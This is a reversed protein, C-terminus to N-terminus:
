AISSAETEPRPDRSSRRRSSRRGWRRRAPRSTTARPASTPRSISHGDIRLRTERRIADRNRSRRDRRRGSPLDVGGGIDRKARLGRPPNVGVVLTRSAAVANRQGRGASGNPAASAPVARMVTRRAFGEPEFYGVCTSVGRRVRVAGSSPSTSNKTAPTAPARDAVGSPTSRRRRGCRRFRSGGAAVRDM